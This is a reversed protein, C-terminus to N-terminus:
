AAQGTPTAWPMPVPVSVQDAHISPMVEAHTAATAIATSRRM